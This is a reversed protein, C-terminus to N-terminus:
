AERPRVAWSIASIVPIGLLFRFRGLLLNWWFTDFYLKWANKKHGNRIGAVCVPRLHRTLISLREKKRETGGPYAGQKEQQVMHTAGALTKNFDTVASEQGRRYGALVPSKIHVYGPSDGLQLWLDSDEGNLNEQLFHIGGIFVSRKIAVTGMPIWVNDVSSSLYDKYVQVDRTAQHVRQLEVSDRFEIIEGSIFSPSPYDDIVSSFISLSWPFWLDDSDLFVVYEGTAVSIGKNRAAGPGQNEQYIYRIKEGYQRVADATDDTSGDDVILIEYDQFSQSLVSQIASDLIEVRNYTPIIVTFRPM